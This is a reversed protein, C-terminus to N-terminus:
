AVCWGAPIEAALANPLVVSWGWTALPPLHFSILSTSYLPPHLFVELLAPIFPHQPLPIWSRVLSLNSVQIGDLTLALTSFFVWARFDILRNNKNNLFLLFFNRPIRPSIFSFYYPDLTSRWHRTWRFPRLHNAKFPPNDVVVRWTRCMVLPSSPSFWSPSVLLLLPCKWFPSPSGPGLGNSSGVALFLRFFPPALHYDNGTTVTSRVPTRFLLQNCAICLVYLTIDM